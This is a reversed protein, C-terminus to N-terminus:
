ASRIWWLRSRSSPSCTSRPSTRAPSNPDATIAETLTTICPVLLRYGKTRINGNSTTQHLLKLEIRQALYPVVQKVEHTDPDM